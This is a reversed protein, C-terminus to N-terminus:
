PRAAETKPARNRRKPQPLPSASRPTASVVIDVRREELYPVGIKVIVPVPNAAKPPPAHGAPALLM